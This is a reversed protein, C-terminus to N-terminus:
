RGWILTDVRYPEISGQQADIAAAWSLLATGEAMKQQAKKEDKAIASVLKGALQAALGQYFLPHWLNPDTVRALYVIKVVGDNTLLTRGEIKFRYITAAEFLSLNSTDLNAGNYEIVKLADAPLTYRFAFEFAPAVADQALEARTKNFRWHALVLAGDRLAPYFTQCHNAPTSGDDIANIRGQGIQGLADNLLDTESPL